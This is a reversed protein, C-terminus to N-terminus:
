ASIYSLNLTANKCNDQNLATNLLQVDPGSWSGNAAGTTIDQGVATFANNLQFDAITCAPKLPDEAGGSVSAKSATVSTVYSAGANSNTFNGALEEVPGGPYLTGASVSTQHVTIGALVTGTSASGTGSGSATWYALAGVASIAAIAIVLLLSMGKKSKILKM